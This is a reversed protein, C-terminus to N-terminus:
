VVRYCIDPVYRQVQGQVGSQKWLRSGSHQDQRPAFGEVKYQTECVQTLLHFVLSLYVYEESFIIYQHAGYKYGKYLMQLYRTLVWLAAASLAVSTPTTPLIDM